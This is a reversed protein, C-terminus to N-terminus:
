SWGPCDYAGTDRDSCFYITRGGKVFSRYVSLAIKRSEGSTKLAVIPDNDEYSFEILVRQPKNGRVLLSLHTKLIISKQRFLSQLRLIPCLCASSCNTKVMWLPALNAHRAINGWLAIASANGFSPLQIDISPTHPELRYCNWCTSPYSSNTTGIYLADNVYVLQDM